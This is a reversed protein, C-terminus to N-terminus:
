KYSQLQLYSTFMVNWTKGAERQIEYVVSYASAVYHLSVQNGSKVSNKSTNRTSHFVDCSKERSASRVFSYILLDYNGRIPISGVDTARRGQMVVAKCEMYFFM